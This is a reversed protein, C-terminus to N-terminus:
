LQGKGVEARLAIDARDLDEVGNAVQRSYLFEFCRRLPGTPEQRLTSVRGERWRTDAPLRDPPEEPCKIGAVGCSGLDVRM